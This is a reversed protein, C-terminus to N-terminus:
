LTKCCQLDFRKVTKYLVLYVITLGQGFRNAGTLFKEVISMGRINLM